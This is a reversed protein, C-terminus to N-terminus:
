VEFDMAVGEREGGAIKRKAAKESGKVLKGEFAKRFSKDMLDRVVKPDTGGPHLQLLVQTGKDNRVTVATVGRAKEAKAKWGKPYDFAIGEGSFRAADQALATGVLVAGAVAVALLLTRM